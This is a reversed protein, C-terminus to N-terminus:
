PQTGSCSMGVSVDSRLGSQRRVRVMKLGEFADISKLLQLEPNWSVRGCGMSRLRRPREEGLIHDRCDDLLTTGVCDTVIVAGREKLREVVKDVFSAPHGQPRFRCDVEATMLPGVGTNGPQYYLPSVEPEMTCAPLLVPQLGISDEFAEEHAKPRLPEDM